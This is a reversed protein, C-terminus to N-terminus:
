STPLGFCGSFFGRLLSLVFLLSLGCLVLGSDCGPWRPPLRANEDNSWGQEQQVVTQFVCVEPSVKMMNYSLPISEQNTGLLELGTLGMYYPDGWTSVFNLQLVLSHLLLFFKILGVQCFDAFKQSM